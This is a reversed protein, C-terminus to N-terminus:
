CDVGLNRDSFALPAFVNRECFQVRGVIWFQMLLTFTILVKDLLLIFKVQFCHNILLLM